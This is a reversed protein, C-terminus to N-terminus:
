VLIKCTKSLIYYAFINEIDVSYSVFEEFSSTSEYFDDSVILM